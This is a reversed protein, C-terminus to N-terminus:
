LLLDDLRGVVLGDECKDARGPVAAVPQQRLRRIEKEICLNRCRRAEICIHTHDAVTAKRAIDRDHGDRCLSDLGFYIETWTSDDNRDLISALPMETETECDQGAVVGGVKVRSWGDNKLGDTSDFIRKM